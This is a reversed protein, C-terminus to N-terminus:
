SGVRNTRAEMSSTTRVRNTASARTTRTTIMKRWVQRAEIMGMAATGTERTPVKATIFASPNEILASESKPRTRAMPITTSSAM